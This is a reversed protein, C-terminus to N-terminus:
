ICTEEQGRFIGPICLVGVRSKIVKSTTSISCFRQQTATANMWSTICSTSSNTSSWISYFAITLDIYLM